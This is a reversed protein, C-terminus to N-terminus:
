CHDGQKGKGKEESHAVRHSIRRYRTEGCTRPTYSTPVSIYRPIPSTPEM